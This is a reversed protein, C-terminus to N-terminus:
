VHWYRFVAALALFQAGWICFKNKRHTLLKLKYAIYFGM